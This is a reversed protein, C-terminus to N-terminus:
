PRQIWSAWQKDFARVLCLHFLTHWATSKGGNTVLSGIRCALGLVWWESQFAGRIGLATVAIATQIAIMSTQQMPISMSAASMAAIAAVAAAREAPNTYSGLAMALACLQQSTYDARLLLKKFRGERPWLHYMMSCLCLPVFTLPALSLRPGTAPHNNRLQVFRRVAVVMGPLMSAASPIDMMQGSTWPLLRPWTWRGNNVGPMRGIKQWHMSRLQVFAGIIVLCVSVLLPSPPLLGDTTRPRAPWTRPPECRVLRRRVGITCCATQKLRVALTGPGDHLNATM